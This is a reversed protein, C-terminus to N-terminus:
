ALRCTVRVISADQQVQVMSMGTNRASCQAYLLSAPSGTHDGWHADRLGGRRALPRPVALADGLLIGEPGVCDEPAEPPEPSGQQPLQNITFTM